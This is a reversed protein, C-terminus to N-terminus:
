RTSIVPSGDAMTSMVGVLSLPSWLWAAMAAPTPRTTFAMGVTTSPATPPDAGGQVEREDRPRPQSQAM